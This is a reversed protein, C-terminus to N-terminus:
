TRHEIGDIGYVALLRCVGHEFNGSADTKYPSTGNKVMVGNLLFNVDRAPITTNDYLVRGSLLVSSINEFNINQAICHDLGLTITATGSSTHNFQFQATQSTPTIAYAYGEGYRLSDLLYYGNEDTIVSQVAEGTSTRIANVEIGPCATGDEYRIYGSVKGYPNRSGVVPKSSTSMVNGNCEYTMTLQYEWEESVFPNAKTDKYWSGSLSDALVTWEGTTGAPRTEVKYLGVNGDTLTWTLLVGDSYELKTANFGAIEAL